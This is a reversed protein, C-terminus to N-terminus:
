SRSSAPSASAPTGKLKPATQLYAADIASPPPPADANAKTDEKLGILLMAVHLDRPQVTTNLLSEYTKGKDNVMVYEILGQRFSVTAPFTVRRNKKDLRVGHYDLVGPAVERLVPAAPATPPPAPADPPAAQEPPTNTSQTLLALVLLFPRIM